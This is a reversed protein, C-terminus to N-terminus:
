GTKLMSAGSNDSKQGRAHANTMETLDGYIHLKPPRYEQKAKIEPVKM